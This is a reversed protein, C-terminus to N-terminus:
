YQNGFEDGPMHLGSEAFSAESMFYKLQPPVQEFAAFDNNKLRNIFLDVEYARAFEGYNVAAQYKRYADFYVLRQRKKEQENFQLDSLVFEQKEEYTLEIVQNTEWDYKHTRTNFDEVEIRTNGNIILMKKVEM